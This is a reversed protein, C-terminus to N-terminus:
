GATKIEVLKPAAAKPLKIELVGKDLRATAKNPDVNVPLSINRFVENISIESYRQKKTPDAETKKEIKGYISLNQADTRISLEKAEFGPVEARIIVENSKEEMEIPAAKVLESEARFWDNLAFGDNYGREQFLSFARNEIKQMLRDMEEFISLPRAIKINSGTPISQNVLSTSM